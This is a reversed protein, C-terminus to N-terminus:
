ARPSDPFFKASSRFCPLVQGHRQRFSSRGRSMDSSFRGGPRRVRVHRPCFFKEGAETRAVQQNGEVREPRQDRQRHREMVQGRRIVREPQEHGRDRTVQAHDIQPRAARADPQEHIVLVGRGLACVAADDFGHPRKRRHLGREDQDHAQGARARQDRKKLQGPLLGCGEPPEPHPLDNKQRQIKDEPDPVLNELRM